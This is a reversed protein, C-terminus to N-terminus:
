DDGHRAHLPEVLLDLPVPVADQRGRHLGADRDLGPDTEGPVAEDPVGSANNRQLVETSRGVALHEEALETESGLVDRFGGPFRDGCGLASASMRCTPSAIEMVSASLRRESSPTAIQSSSRDRLRIVDPLRASSISWCCTTPTVVLGDIKWFAM